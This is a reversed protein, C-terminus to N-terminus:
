LNMEREMKRVEKLRQEVKALQFRDDQVMKLAHSLQIEAKEFVGNLLFYEARALHVDLINGALGHVEALLYWVYDDKPRREVHAKLVQECQKYHGAKMLIEALRVNLPHYRPYHKKESQLLAIAEDAQGAESYAEALAINYYPSRPDRDLLERLLEKARDTKGAQTHALALGYKAAEGAVSSAKARSEFMQLAYVPDKQHLLEVRAKILQYELELPNLRKPYQQARLKTDNVRSESLPHTLLFEPPRRQYRNLKMMEEFMEPMAYPNMGARVLTEMGIRDAEQEMGRSFRLQADISAAQTAAIAAMGGDGQSSAAILISALLAAMTKVSNEQRERVGRAFHRQSLHGLEHAIVSALQQETNAYLLLGTHIGVVGGPVAFANLTPNEVVLVDLRPDKLDSYTSLQFVLKELYAQLFPDSSTPVQARYARMWKQGLEYEQSPTIIGAGPDGLEPLNLDAALAAGAITVGFALKALPRIVTAVLRVVHRPLSRPLPLHLLHILQQTRTKHKQSFLMRIIVM